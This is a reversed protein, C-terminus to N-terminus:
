GTSKEQNRVVIISIGVGRGIEHGDWGKLTSKNRGLTSHCPCDQISVM